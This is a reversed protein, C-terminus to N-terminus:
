SAQEARRSLEGARRRQSRRQRWLLCHSATEHWTAGGRKGGRAADGGAGGQSAKAEAAKEKKEESVAYAGAGAQSIYYLLVM